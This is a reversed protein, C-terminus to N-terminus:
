KLLNLYSGSYVGGEIYEDYNPAWKNVNIDSSCHCLTTNCIIPSTPWKINEYDEIEGIFDGVMCNGPKIKGDYHVFLSKLGIECTYGEFNTMGSNVFQVPNIEMGSVISGDDFEFSSGMDVPQHKPLLHNMIKRHGKNNEQDDFWDLQDKTYVHADRNEGGFDLIRVPEVCSTPIDSISNFVEVCHDWMSPLMMVRVTLYTNLSSAIIKEKFDKVPFEPHYSFCIYYLYKSIDEWYEISKIANSTVGITNGSSNFKKVLDPFFPSLTPEGGSVSCHVNSYNEFLKDLFKEANEWSYHHGIGSNLAPICYSCRNNCMNNIVWTLNMFSQDNQIVRIIKKNM